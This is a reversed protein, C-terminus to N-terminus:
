EAANLKAILKKRVMFYVAIGMFPFIAYVRFMNDFGIASRLTGSLM